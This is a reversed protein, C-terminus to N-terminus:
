VAIRPLWSPVSMNAKTRFVSTFWNIKTPFFESGAAELRLEPFTLWGLDL